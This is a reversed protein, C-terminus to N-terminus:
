RRCARLSAGRVRERAGGLAEVQAERRLVDGGQVEPLNDLSTERVGFLQLDSDARRLLERARAHATHRPEQRLVARGQVRSMQAPDRRREGQGRVGPVRVTQSTETPGERSQYRRCGTEPYYTIMLRLVHIISLVLRGNVCIYM